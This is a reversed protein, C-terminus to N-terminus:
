SMLKRLKELCRARTPGISPVPMSLRRSVEEYSPKEETYYLLEVLERCRDGLRSVAERLLQQEELRLQEEEALPREDVLEPLVRDDEAPDGGEGIPAERRGRNTVRWCERTTTTILWSALKGRDKLTALHEILVLCVSQFVDGAVEEGLGYRIPISYILRQYRRILTEWAAEEGDICRAILVSDELQDLKPGSTTPV